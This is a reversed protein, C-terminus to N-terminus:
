RKEGEAAAAAKAAAASKRAEADAVTEVAMQWNAKPQRVDGERSADAAAPNHTKLAELLDAHTEDDLTPEPAEWARWATGLAKHLFVNVPRFLTCDCVLICRSLTYSMRPSKM